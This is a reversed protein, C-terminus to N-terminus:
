KLSLDLNTQAPKTEEPRIASEVRDHWQLYKLRWQAMDVVSKLGPSLKDGLQPVTVAISRYAEVALQPQMLKEYTIGIQYRVPLQWAPSGDLKALALYVELARIFDSEQYLQNGIENGVRQQWYSWVEPRDKTQERQEQLFVLVQKLADANRGQGKLAQALYYRVEPEDPSDKYHDLFDKAQRAAPEHQQVASLSRVFRFQIQARDLAPDNQTLLRGYYDAADKYRGMHFHTEAIEMQSQLVLRKYYPMQDNKLSLAATMVGYFKSLAFNHLGMQRFVQGQHLYIEPTRADGPWRQLYQALMSQARPLDNQAQVALAMEFLATQKLDDAVDSALLREFSKEATQFDRTSAAFRAQSLVYNLHDLKSPPAFEAELDSNTKVGHENASVHEVPAAHAPPAPAEKAAAPESAPSHEASKAPEHGPENAALRTVCLFLVAARFFNRRAFIIKWFNM